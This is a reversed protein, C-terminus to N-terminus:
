PDALRQFTSTAPTDMHSRTGPRDMQFGLLERVTRRLVVFVSRRRPTRMM